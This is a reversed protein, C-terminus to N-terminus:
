VWTMQSEPWMGLPTGATWGSRHGHYSQSLHGWQHSWSRGPSDSKCYVCLWRHSASDTHFTLKRQHLCQQPEPDTAKWPEAWRQDSVPGSEAKVDWIPETAVPQNSFVIRHGEPNDPRFLCSQNLCLVPEELVLFQITINKSFWSYQTILTGQPPIAPLLITLM